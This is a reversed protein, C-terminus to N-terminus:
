TQSRRENNRGGSAPHARRRPFSENGIGIRRAAAPAARGSKVLTASTGPTRVAAAAGRSGSSSLQCGDVIATHLVTRQRRVPDSRRAGDSAQLAGPLRGRRRQSVARIQRAQLFSPGAQTQRECSLDGVGRESAVAQRGAAGDFSRRAAQRIGEPEPRSTQTGNIENRTEAKPPQASSRKSRRPGRTASRVAGPATSIASIFPSTPAATAPKTPLPSAMIIERVGAHRKGDGYRQRLEDKLKRIHFQYDRRRWMLRPTMEVESWGPHAQSPKMASEPAEYQEADTVAGAGHNVAVAINRLTEREQEEVTQLREFAAPDIHREISERALGRLDDPAIADVEVSEGEFNKNRSDTTKTPRTPLDLSEIQEETVAVREFAIGAHPALERIGEEVARTIDVGSPDFDGFYYLYTPKHQQAIALAANHLYSLSPYGRTVMLPVDWESTVDYLVGALADKELWIEVYAEQDNWLARRYFETQREFMDGLSKYSTPKRMWRTNDALWEFPIQQARRMVTLNHVLTKYAAETKEIVSRSVLQYYLQRVTAPRIEELVAAISSRYTEMETRTRRNTLSSEYVPKPKPAKVKAPKDHNKPGRTASRAAGAVISIGNIFHFTPAATASPTRPNGAPM